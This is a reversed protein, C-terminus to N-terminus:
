REVRMMFYIGFLLFVLNALWASVIPPLVGSLGLSRAFGLITLYLFCIGMGISVALPTGGRKQRLAISIGIIVLVLSVFPFAIKINMDVLYETNDYGERLVRESYRKLQWYNMEEPKKVARMFTRPTEPLNLYLDKFRKFDYGGKDTVEQIIGEEIKWNDGTWVGRRGDIRKVLHFTEDFFYLTPKKMVMKENDFNRIWYIAKNTRYWVENRGYFRAPDRKQVERNWIENSRSSSYPVVVESIVFVAGGVFLAAMGVSISLRFMDIGCAKMATIENKKKLLSFLIIVSILSAPPVMQIMIFPAKFLFYALMLGVPVHSEIFNDVKQIFDIILYISLFIVLCLVLLKVFEEIVYRSLIKM